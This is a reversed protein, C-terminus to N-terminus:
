YPSKGPTSQSQRLTALYALLDTIDQDSLTTDPLMGGGPHGERIARFRAKNDKLTLAARNRLDPATAALKALVAATDPKLSPKKDIMGDLGHCYHCIGKGNFLNQGQTANGKTAVRKEDSEGRTLFPGTLLLGGVAIIWVQTPVRRYM